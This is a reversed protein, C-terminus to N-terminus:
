PSVGLAFMDSTKSIAGCFLLSNLWLQVEERNLHDGLRNNQAKSKDTQHTQGKGSFIQALNKNFIKVL